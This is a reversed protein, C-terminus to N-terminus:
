QKKYKEAYSFTTSKTNLPIYKSTFIGVTFFFICAIIFMVNLQVQSSRKVM